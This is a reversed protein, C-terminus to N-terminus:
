EVMLRCLTRVTAGAERVRDARVTLSAALKMLRRLEEAPQLSIDKQEASAESLCSLRPQTTPEVPTNL